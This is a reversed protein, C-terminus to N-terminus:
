WKKSAVVLIAVLCILGAGGLCVYWLFRFIESPDKGSDEWDTDLDPLTPRGNVDNGDCIHKGNGLSALYVFDLFGNDYNKATVSMRSLSSSSSITVTKRSGTYIRCDISCFHGRLLHVTASQLNLLNGNLRVTDMLSCNVIICLSFDARSSENSQFHRRTGPMAVVAQQVFEKVSPVITMAGSMGLPMGKEIFHVVMIPLNSTVHVVHSGSLHQIFNTFNDPILVRKIDDHIIVQTDQDLVTFHLVHSTTEAQFPSVEFEVGWSSTPLLQEVMFYCSSSSAQTGPIIGCTNGSVVAIPRTATVRTRSLNRSSSVLISKHNNLTMRIVEPPTFFQQSVNLPVMPEITIATNDYAASITFIAHHTKGKHQDLREGLPPATVIFYDRDLSSIPLVLFGEGPFSGTYEYGVTCRVSIDNSSSVTITMAHGNGVDAVALRPLDIISAEQNSVVRFEAFNIEKINVKVQSSNHSRGLVTLTAILGEPNNYFQPIAFIFTRGHDVIGSDPFLM